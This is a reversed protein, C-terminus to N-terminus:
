LGARFEGIAAALAAWPFPRLRHDLVTVGCSRLTEISRPFAPHSSLAENVAPAVVMPLAKGISENLLGLALTDSAGAAMKNITNFTAPAVVLADPPPLVDPEDPHKYESRVPHGTSSALAPADFFNLASPTAVVCVNWDSTLAAVFAPLDEAPRAGCAVAYLVPLTM